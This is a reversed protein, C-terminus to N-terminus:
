NESESRSEGKTEIKVDVADDAETRERCCCYIAKPRGVETNQVSVKGLSGCLEACHTSLNNLKNLIDEKRLKERKFNSEVKQSSEPCRIGQIQPGCKIHRLLHSLRGKQPMAPGAALVLVLIMVFQKSDM